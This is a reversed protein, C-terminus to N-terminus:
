SVHFRTRTRALESGTAPDELTLQLSYGGPSLAQPQFTILLSMVGRGDPASRGLVAIRAPRQDRGDASVVRANLRFPAIAQGHDQQYIMVCVRSSGAARVTPDILPVFPKGAIELPEVADRGAGATDKLALGDGGDAVFLPPAMWFNRRSWDPVTAPVVKFAYRGSREDRVYARVHFDGPPLHCTGYYTFRGDRLADGQRATDITVFRTFYDVLQDSADTVYVFVGLDVKGAPDVNAKSLLAAGPIEILIPVPSIPRGPTPVVEVELPFDGGDKEHTIVDAASLARELPSMMGYARSEYYGARASVRVGKVLCRVSIRHFTGEGLSKGPSFSLVYTLSTKEAVRELQENLDNANQILEGGTGSAIQFLADEGRAGSGGLDVDAESKLGAIDIPYVNCDSRRFLGLTRDLTEQLPTNSYRKDVDIQWFQGNLMAENDAARDEPKEGINGVLLSGDFGESFYVITKRGDVADLAKALMSMGTLQRAIRNASFFDSTKQAMMNYIKLNAIVDANTRPDFADGSFEAQSFPDGPLTFAFALPDRAQDVLKPLGLTRIAAILQRRDATFTVLLHIGTDVSVTAVGALDEPDMVHTVFRLAADRSRVIENPTAYSLDFLLLFHRRAAAPFTQNEPESVKHRLDVADFAVIPRVERDDRVEFDKATLGAVPKGDHGIVNVPVEVLSVGASEHYPESTSQRAPVPTALCLAAAAAVCSSAWTRGMAAESDESDIGKAVSLDNTFIARNM